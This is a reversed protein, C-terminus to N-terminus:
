INFDNINKSFHKSLKIIFVINIRNYTIKYNIKM